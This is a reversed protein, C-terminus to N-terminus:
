EHHFVTLISKLPDIIANEQLKDSNMGEEHCLPTKALLVNFHCQFVTLFYHCLKPTEHCYSSTGWLFFAM